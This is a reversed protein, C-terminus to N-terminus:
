PIINSYSLLGEELLSLAIVLVLSLSQVHSGLLSHVSTALSLCLLLFLGSLLDEHGLYEDGVVHLLLSVKDLVSPLYPVVM